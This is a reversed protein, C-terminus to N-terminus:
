HVMDAEMRALVSGWFLALAYPLGLQGWQCPAMAFSTLSSVELHVHSTTSAGGLVLIM